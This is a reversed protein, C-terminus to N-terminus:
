KKGDFNLPKLDALAKELQMGRSGKILVLDRDDLMPLAKLALNQEYTDSLLPKKKFGAEKLGAAFEAQSPGFFCVEDFNASAVARGLERHLSPAHDGLERMEGLIAIKRGTAKLTSFNEIAARMSEPNANYADFLAKAGSALDVWQNRGWAMKIKPLAMWVEAPTMGCYLGFCAATMLNTVNHAGFVPVTTEGGQGQIEGIIHLSEANASQVNLSVDTTPWDGKPGFTLIREVPKKSEWEKFMKNTYPNELNFIFTADKPAYKYIEAKAQAVGEVSGVGQLHGRGVMTCVVVDPEAIENLLKLEGPHNMGMEIVAVEHEPGISLLSIPVGWHNNFSGKSYQVNFKTSLIGAAFEKTTTKGNTGTIGLITAKMKHRWFNGLRQIAKLTDDVQVITVQAELDKRAQGEPLRHVILAAAKSKAAQALFDHADFNDGKLAFFIKGSLDARTDTGVGNFERENQSVVKGETGAVLEELSMKWQTM